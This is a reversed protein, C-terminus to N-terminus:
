YDKYTITMVVVMCQHNVVMDTIFGDGNLSEYGVEIGSSEFVKTKGISIVKLDESYTLNEDSVIPITVGTSEAIYFQLETAAYENASNADSKKVIVYSTSGNKIIYKVTEGFLFQLSGLLLVILIM